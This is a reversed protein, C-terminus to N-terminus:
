LLLTESVSAAQILFMELTPLKCVWQPTVLDREVGLLCGSGLLSLVALLFAQAVGVRPLQGIPCQAGRSLQPDKANGHEFAFAKNARSLQM